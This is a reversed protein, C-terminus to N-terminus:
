LIKSQSGTRKNKAGCRHVIRHYSEVSGKIQNKLLEVTKPDNLGDKDNVLFTNNVRRSPLMLM